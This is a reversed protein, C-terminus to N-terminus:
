EGFHTNVEIWARGRTCVVKYGLSFPKSIGPLTTWHTPWATCRWHQPGYNIGNDKEEIFVTYHHPLVRKDSQVVVGNITYCGVGSVRVAISGEEGVYRTCRQSASASAPVILAVLV